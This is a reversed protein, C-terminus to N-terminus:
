VVELSGLADRRMMAGSSSVGPRPVWAVPCAPPSGVIELLFVCSPACCTPPSPGQGAPSSESAVPARLGPLFLPQPSVAASGPAPTHAAGWPVRQIESVWGPRMPKSVCLQYGGVSEWRVSSSTLGWRKLVRLTVCVGLCPGWPGSVRHLYSSLSNQKRGLAWGVVGRVSPAGPVLRYGSGFSLRENSSTAGLFMELTHFGRFRRDGPGRTGTRGGVAVPLSFCVLMRAM